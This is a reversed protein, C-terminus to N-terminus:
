PTGPPIDILDTRNMQLHRNPSEGPTLLTEHVSRKYIMRGGLKTYLRRRLEWNSHRACASEGGFTTAPCHKEETSKFPHSHLFQGALQYYEEKEKYEEPTYLRIKNRSFSTLNRESDDGSLPAGM